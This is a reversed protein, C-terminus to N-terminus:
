KRVLKYYDKPSVEYSPGNSLFFGHLLMGEDKKWPNKTILRVTTIGEPIDIKLPVAVTALRLPGFGYAWNPPSSLNSEARPCKVTAVTEDNVQVTLTISKSELYSAYRLLIHADPMAKKLTFRYEIFGDKRYGWTEDSIRDFFYPGAGPTCAYHMYGAQWLWAGDESIKALDATRPFDNKALKLNPYDRPFRRPKMEGAHIKPLRQNIRGLHRVFDYYLKGNVDALGWNNPRFENRDKLLFYHTGVMFPLEAASSAYIEYGKARDTQTEFLMGNWSRTNPLGADKAAMTFEGILMPKGTLRYIHKLQTSPPKLGYHNVTLVDCYESEIKYKMNSGGAGIFRSGLLLHNRDYKRIAGVAVDYFKRQFAEDDPLQIENDIFWGIILPNNAQPKIVRKAWNDAVRQFEPHFVDPFRKYKAHRPVKSDRARKLCRFIPTVPFRGNWNGYVSGCTNFNWKHFRTAWIKSMPEFRDFMKQYTKSGPLGPPYELSVGFCYNVGISYFPNGDPDVFWWAGDIKKVTFYGDGFCSTCILLVVYIVIYFRHRQM